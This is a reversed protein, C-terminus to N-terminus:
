KFVSFNEKKSKSSEAQLNLQPIYWIGARVRGAAWQGVSPPPVSCRLRESPGYLQSKYVSSPQRDDEFRIEQSSLGSM